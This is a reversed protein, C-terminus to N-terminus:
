SSRTMYAPARLLSTDVANRLYYGNQSLVLCFEYMKRVMDSIPKVRNRITKMRLSDGEGPLLKTNTMTVM